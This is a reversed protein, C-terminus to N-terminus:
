RAPGAHGRRRIDERGGVANNTGLVRREVSGTAMTPATAPYAGPSPRYVCGFGIRERHKLVQNVSLGAGERWREDADLDSNRIIELSLLKIRIVQWIRYGIIECHAACDAVIAAIATVRRHM